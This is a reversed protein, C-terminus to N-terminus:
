KGRYCNLEPITEILKNVKEIQEDTWDDRCFVKHPKDFIFNKCAIVYEDTCEMDLFSIMQVIWHWPNLVLEELHIVFVSDKRKTYFEHTMHMRKTYMELVHEINNGSIKSGSQINQFPERVVWFWYIPVGIYDCFKKFLNDNTFAIANKQTSASDGIIKVNEINGQFSNGINYSYGGIEKGKTNSEYECYTFIIDFTEERTYRDIFRLCPNVKLSIAINPHADLISSVLSHGTRAPGIFLVFKEVEKYSSM